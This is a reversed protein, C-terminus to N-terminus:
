GNCARQRRESRKEALLASAHKWAFEPILDIVYTVDETAVGCIHAYRSLHGPDIEADVHVVTLGLDYLHLSTVRKIAEHIDLKFFERSKNVRFDALEDHVACEFDNANNVHIAFEVVFPTAVGTTFLEASRDTPLRKTKGIKLIEPMTENSLIYIFGPQYSNRNEPYKQSV